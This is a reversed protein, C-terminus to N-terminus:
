LMAGDVNAATDSFILTAGHCNTAKLVSEPEPKPYEASTKAPGSQFLIQPYREELLHLLECEYRVLSEDEHLLYINRKM